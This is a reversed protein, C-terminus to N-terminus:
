VVPVRLLGPNGNGGTSTLQDIAAAKLRYVRMGAEKETEGARFCVAMLPQRQFKFRCLRYHNLVDVTSPVGQMTHHSHVWGLLRLEPHAEIFSALQIEGTHTTETWVADSVHDIVLMDTVEVVTTNSAAGIWFAMSEVGAADSEAFLKQCAALMDSPLCASQPTASPQLGAASTARTLNAKATMPKSLKRKKASGQADAWWKPIRM